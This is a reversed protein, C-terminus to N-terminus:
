IQQKVAHLLEPKQLRYAERILRKIRNRDVAKKFNKKSVAVGFQLIPEPVREGSGPTDNDITSDRSILYLVRLPYISFSEGSNFVEEIVKRKKLRENKGLTLRTEM